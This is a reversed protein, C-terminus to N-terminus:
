YAGGCTKTFDFVDLGYNEIKHNIQSNKVLPHFTSKCADRLSERGTQVEIIKVEEVFAIIHVGLLKGVEVATKEDVFGSRGFEQEELIEDIRKRDVVDLKGVKLLKLVSADYLIDNKAFVAIIRVTDLNFQPSISYEVSLNRMKEEVSACGVLFLFL